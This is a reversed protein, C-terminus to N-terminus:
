KENWVKWGDEELMVKAQSCLPSKIIIYKKNIKSDIYIELRTHLEILEGVDKRLVRSKKEVVMVLAYYKKLDVGIYLGVKKRSKIEKPQIEKLSKFIINKKGLYEVIEKM